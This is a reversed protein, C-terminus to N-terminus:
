RRMKDLLWLGVWALLLGAENGLVDGWELHRFGAIRWQAVELLAALAALALLVWGRRQTFWGFWLGIGAFLGVHALVDFAISRGASPHGPLCYLVALLALASCGLPLGLRPAAM